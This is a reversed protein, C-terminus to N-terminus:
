AWVRGRGKGFALYAVLLGLAAYVIFPSVAPGGTTKTGVVVGGGEQALTAQQQPTLGQERQGAGQLIVPVQGLYM